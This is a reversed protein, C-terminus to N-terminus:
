RGRPRQDATSNGPFAAKRAALAIPVGFFFMHSLLNTGTGILSYKVEHPFASLPLVIFNMVAFVLLGYAIGCPYAHTITVSLLRSLGYYAAAFIAAIFFHAFFGLAATAAGGEYASVGLLGSAITQLLHEPTVGRILWYTLAYALDLAGAVAAGLLMTLLVSKRSM